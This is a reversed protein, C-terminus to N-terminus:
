PEPIQSKHDSRYRYVDVNRTGMEHGRDYQRSREHRVYVGTNRRRYRSRREQDPKGGDPNGSLEFSLTYESGNTTGFSTSISGAGLGDLDVSSGGGPPSQWYTNVLDVSNGGVTWGSISTSDGSSYTCFNSGCSSSFNGNSVLNAHAVGPLFGAAMAACLALAKRNIVM